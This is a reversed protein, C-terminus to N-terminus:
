LNKGGRVAELHRRLSGPDSLLHSYHKRITEPSNGLFIALTDINRDKKLFTTAFTHRYSYPILGQIGTKKRLKAFASAVLAPTWAKGSKTRFLPGTPYQKVLERVLDLAAGLFMIVRDGEKGATKHRFEDERRRDDGYYVIAGGQDIENWDKATAACLEGPRAGTNELAIVMHRLGRTPCAALIQQHQEDTLVTDRSRSRRQPREIQETPDTSIYKRKIAWRFAARLSDLWMCVSTDGWKTCRKRYKTTTRPERMKAIFAELMESTLKGIPTDGYVDILPHFSALRLRITAPQKKTSIFSMYAELVARLPNSDKASPVAAMEMLQRFNDLAKLYVPGRASQDDPGKALPIQKGGIQTYFGGRSEYYRVESPRSM